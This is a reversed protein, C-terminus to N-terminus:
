LNPIYKDSPYQVSFKFEKRINENSNLKLEWNLIGTKANFNGGGNELMEVSINENKSIPILDELTLNIATNKNNKVNIEYAYIREIDSSLFKDEKFDKLQKREVIINKDKGLSVVLESKSTSPDFYSQGM